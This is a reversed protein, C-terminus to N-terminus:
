SKGIPYQFQDSTKTNTQKNIRTKTQKVFWSNFATIATKAGNTM